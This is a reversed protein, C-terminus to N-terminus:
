GPPISERIAGLLGLTDHASSWREIYTWDLDAGRVAIMNRVDDRDKGRNALTAWRLKTIIMDEATAMCVERDLARVRQRRAFRATDHPDDGCVFLECVFPSNRLTVLYRTTGTVTEFAAQPELHLEDPLAAALDAISRPGIQILFDADRTARPIGHFNSALSGVIRFPISARDLADIAAVAADDATM